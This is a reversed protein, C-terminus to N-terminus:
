PAFASAPSISSTLDPARSPRCAIKQCPPPKGAANSASPIAQLQAVDSAPSDANRVTILVMARGGSDIAYVESTQGPNIPWGGSEDPGPDPWLRVIPGDCSSEDFSKDLSLTVHTAPLGGITTEVPTSTTHTGQAELTAIVAARDATPVLTNRWKCADGYVHTVIWTTLRVGSRDMDGRLAGDGGTWGGPVTFTFPVLTLRPDSVTYTGAALSGGPLPPPLTPSPTPQAGVGTTRPLFNFGLVAVVLVAAAAIGLRTVNSMEAFRRAPWWSPRQPTTDLRALVADLVRDASEHEDM